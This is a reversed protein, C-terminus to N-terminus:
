NDVEICANLTRSVVSAAVKTHVVSAESRSYMEWSMRSSNHETQLILLM